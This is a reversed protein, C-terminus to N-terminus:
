AWRLLYETLASGELEAVITIQWGYSTQDLHRHWTPTTKANKMVFQGKESREWNYLPEAILLDPDESDSQRFQHVIIKKSTM